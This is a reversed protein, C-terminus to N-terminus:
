RLILSGNTESKNRQEPTQPPPPSPAAPLPPPKPPLPQLFPSPLPPPEAQPTKLRPRKIAETKFGHQLMMHLSRRVPRPPVHAEPPMEDSAAYPPSWICVRSKLHVFCPNGSAHRVIM